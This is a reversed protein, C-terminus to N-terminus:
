KPGPPAQQKRRRLVLFALFAAAAIAVLVLAIWLFSDSGLGSRSLQADLDRTEGSALTVQVTVSQYGALTFTVNYTGPSVPLYYGGSANTATYYGGVDTSVNVGALPNATGAVTVIGQVITPASGPNGPLEWGWDRYTYTPGVQLARLRVNWFDITGLLSKEVNIRLLNQLTPNPGASTVNSNGTLDVPVFSPDTSDLTTTGNVYTVRFYDPDTENTYLQFEYSTNDRNAISGQTEVSITANAPDTANRSRVWIINISDPFPSSIPDGNGDLVASMNSTWLQEVDSAPDSYDILFNPAGAAPSPVLLAGLLLAAVLAVPLAPKMAGPVSAEPDM